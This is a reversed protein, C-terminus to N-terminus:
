PLFYPPIGHVQIHFTTSDLTIKMIVKNKPWEKLVLHAGNLSWPKSRFIFDKDRKNRFCFKFVNEKIKDIQVREQLRWTKQIIESITFRRFSRATLIKGILTKDITTNDKQRRPQLLLNSLVEQISVARGQSLNLSPLSRHNNEM